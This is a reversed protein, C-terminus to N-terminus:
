RTQNQSFRHKLLATAADMSHSAKLKGRLEKERKQAAARQTSVQRGSGGPRLRRTKKGAFRGSNPDREREQRNLTLKGSAMLDDYLKAKRALDFIRHDALRKLEDQTASYTNALYGFVDELNKRATQEDQWDPLSRLKQGQEKYYAEQAESLHHAVRERVGNMEQLMSGYRARISQEMRQFDAHRANYEEPDEARLGSWDVASYERQLQALETQATQQVFGLAADLERVKDTMERNANEVTSRLSEREKRVDQMHRDYDAQRQYGRIAEELTVDKEEGAVKVRVTLASPDAAGAELLEDLTAFADSDAVEEEAEDEGNAGDEAGDEEAVDDDGAGDESGADASDEEHEVDGDVDATEAEERAWRAALRATPDVPEGNPLTDNRGLPADDTTAVSGGAATAGEARNMLIYLPKHIM